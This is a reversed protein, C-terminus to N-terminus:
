DDDSHFFVFVRLVIMRQNARYAKSAEHFNFSKGLYYIRYPVTEYDSVPLRLQHGRHHFRPWARLDSQVFIERWCGQMEQQKTRQDIQSTDLLLTTLVDCLVTGLLLIANLIPWVEILRFLWCCTGLMYRRALYFCPPCLYRNPLSIKLLWSISM